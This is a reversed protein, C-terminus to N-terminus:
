YYDNNWDYVEQKYKTNHIVYMKKNASKKSIRLIFPIPRGVLRCRLSSNYINDVSINVNDDAINYLKYYNFGGRFIWSHFKYTRCERSFTIYDLDKAHKYEIYAYKCIKDIFNCYIVLNRM